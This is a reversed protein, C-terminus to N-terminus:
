ESDEPPMAALLASRQRDTLKVKSQKVEQEQEQEAKVCGPCGFPGHGYPAECPGDEFGHCRFCHGPFLTPWGEDKLWERVTYRDYYSPEETKDWLVAFAQRKTTETRTDM